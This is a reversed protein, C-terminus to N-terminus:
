FNLLSLLIPLYLFLLSILITGLFFIGMIGFFFGSGSKWNLGVEKRCDNGFSFQFSFIELNSSFNYYYSIWGFMALYFLTFLGLLGMIFTGIAGFIISLTSKLSPRVEENYNYGIFFTFLFVLLSIFSALIGIFISLLIYIPLGSIGLILSLSDLDFKKLDSQKIDNSLKKLFEEINDTIKWM